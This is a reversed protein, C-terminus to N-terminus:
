LRVAFENHIGSIEVVYDLRVTGTILIREVVVAFHNMILSFVGQVSWFGRINLTIVLIGGFTGWSLRSSFFTRKGSFIITIQFHVFLVWFESNHELRDDVITGIAGIYRKRDFRLLIEFYFFEFM